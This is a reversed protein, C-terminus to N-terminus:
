PDLIERLNGRRRTVREADLHELLPIAHKRSVGALEKFGAVDITPSRARWVRLRERLDALAAAHFVKGDPIRVLTGRAVLLDFVRTRAGGDPGALVSAPDPPELGARAFAGEVEGALRRDTESLEVRHGALAVREGSVRVRRDAVLRELLPRWAEQPLGRAAEARLEERGMGLRLPERAHFADLAALTRAALGAWAEAAFWRGAAVVLDGADELEAALAGMRDPALGLESALAAPERGGAGARDLRLLLATRPDVAAAEFAEASVDRPRPPRVDVITGGGVTDVPASRRLVFRDGPVLVTDEDLYIEARWVGGGAADPAELMRLRAARECTGHHFRVPGGRELARPAGPLLRIRAWARRTLTLAGPRTLTAGRPVDERDLGQLNVAARRGAVVEAVKHRHVHLGRVRGRRGGPLVEVEDGERLRGGVLTGTAVTGFGRLVFSRDVPLRAVGAPSREPVEDCLAGLADRLADLGAGTRASVPVLPARSLFTGDLLERVELAAVELLEPDVLDSKTLAVVGHELGLLGCIDLHERTQPRVGEDAAIALLVADIGTAGAVM